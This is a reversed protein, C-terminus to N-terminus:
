HRNIWQYRYQDDIIDRQITGADIVDSPMDTYFFGLMGKCAIPVRLKRANKLAYGYYPLSSAFRYSACHLKSDKKLQAMTDYRKVDYLEARGVLAGTVGPEVRLRRCDQKRVRQPSHVFFEGRFPTNRSRLEITKKGSVILDAFPQCVSLCRVRKHQM